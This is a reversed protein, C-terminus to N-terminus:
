PCTARFGAQTVHRFGSLTPRLGTFVISPPVPPKDVLTRPGRGSPVTRCLQATCDLGAVPSPVYGRTFRVRSEGSRAFGAM